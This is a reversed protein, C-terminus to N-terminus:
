IDIKDPDFAHEIKLSALLDQRLADVLNRIVARADADSLHMRRLYSVVTTPLRQPGTVPVGNGIKGSGSRMLLHAMLTAHHEPTLGVAQEGHTIIDNSAVTATMLVEIIRAHQAASLSTCTSAFLTLIKPKPGATVHEALWWDFLLAHQRENLGANALYAAFARDGQEDREGSRKADLLANVCYAQQREDLPSGAEAFGTVTQIVNTERLTYTGDLSTMIIGMFLDRVGAARMRDQRFRSILDIWAAPTGGTLATQVLRADDDSIDHDATFASQLMTSRSAADIAYLRRYREIRRIQSEAPTQMENTM